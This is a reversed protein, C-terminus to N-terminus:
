VVHDITRVNEGATDRLLFLMCLYGPWLSVVERKIGTGDNDYVVTIDRFVLYRKLVLSVSINVIIAEAVLEIASCCVFLKFLNVM